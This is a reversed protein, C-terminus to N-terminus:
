KIGKLRNRLYQWITPHSWLRSTGNPVPLVTATGSLIMPVVKKLMAIAKQLQLYPYTVFNDQSTVSITEQLLIGGTDIGKDIMHITVGCNEKDNQALAWYAGHVGRYLPTIGVHVNILPCRIKEIVSSSIIRTGNVIILDPNAEAIAKEFSLDNVSPVNVVKDAPLPSLELNNDRLFKSVRGASLRRMLPVVAAQFVLQSAVTFWGLKKIRRKILTGREVPQEVIIQSIPIDKRIGNYLIRTNDCDSCVLVIKPNPASSM